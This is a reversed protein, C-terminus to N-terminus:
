FVMSRQYYGLINSYINLIGMRLYQLLWTRTCLEKLEDKSEGKIETSRDIFMALGMPELTDLNINMKKSSIINNENNYNRCCKKPDEAAKVRDNAKIIIGQENILYTTRVVEMSVKGYNKKEKWVAYTEIVTHKQDALLTFVLGYKEVFKKHSAVSDM